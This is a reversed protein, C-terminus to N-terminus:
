FLPAILDYMLSGFDRGDIFLVAMQFTVLFFCAYFSGPSARVWRLAADGVLNSPRSLNAAIGIIAGILAGALIDSPYHLGLYVRALVLAGMTRSIFFIGTALAFFLVAHDSPFASWADLRSEPTGYPLVFGLDADHLPRTRFPLKLAMARAVAIAVLSALITAVVHRRANDRDEDRFWLGWLAASIVGGKLLNSRTVFDMLHDFSWSRQAFRNLFLLIAEDFGTM